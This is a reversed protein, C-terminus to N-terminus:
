VPEEARQLEEAALRRGGLVTMVANYFGVLAGTLIFIGLGARTIMFPALEPLVRYVTEGNNWASGQILGVATLDLFFGTLGFTILGFQLNVLKNSYVSRGTVLPLIHWMAGLAIYGGFGLMAIHAHGITWNNFHTVRQLYPLSQLPGQICTVLYWVIGGMVLRGAPDGWVRRGVGRATMWLNIVVISVPFVMSVSDVVSVTKLWNPIPSQLVHHGGIHTYLAVLFWFGLLSLTHSNLPMRAVRPIVYYAAGTALPTILLGPLNHGWFWLFISDILGPMAGTKPHWMVNGIPYNCATWLMAGFFYWVSVYLQSENRQAVTMVMNYIALVVAVMLMLDAAWVYESYERGQTYGFSFCVPGSLITLNWLVFCVWALPESWLRTKLLAPVYYLGCGILMTGTFGYLMTNVHIPRERGFVLWPINSFFEPAVLHIASVMGYLAGVVFWGAGALMFATAASQPKQLANPM